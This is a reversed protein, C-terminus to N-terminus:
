ATQHSKGISSEALVGPEGQVESHGGPYIGDPNLIFSEIKVMNGQQPTYGIKQATEQAGAVPFSNLDSFLAMCYGYASLFALAGGTVAGAAGGVLAGQTQRRGGSALIGTLAGTLAGTAAGAATYNAICQKQAKAREEPTLATGPPPTTACANLLFLISILGIM